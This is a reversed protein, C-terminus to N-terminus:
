FMSTPLKELLQEVLPLQFLQLRLLPELLVVGLPLRAHRLERLRPPLLLLLGLPSAIFFLCLLAGHLLQLRQLPLLLIRIDSFQDLGLTVASFFVLFFFSFLALFCCCCRM